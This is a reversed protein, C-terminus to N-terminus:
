QGKRLTHSLPIRLLHAYLLDFAIRRREHGRDVEANKRLSIWKDGLKEAITKELEEIEKDDAAVKPREWEYSKGLTSLVDDM